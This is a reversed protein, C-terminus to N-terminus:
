KKRNNRKKSTNNRKSRRNNRKSRRNNRKSRNNRKKSRRNKYLNGGKIVVNTEYSADPHQDSVSVDKNIINGSTPPDNNKNMIDYDSSETLLKNFFEPTDFTDESIKIKLSEQLTNQLYVGKTPLQEPTAELEEIVNKGRNKVLNYFVISCKNIDNKNSPYLLLRCVTDKGDRKIENNLIKTVNLAGAFSIGIYQVHYGMPQKLVPSGSLLYSNRKKNVCKLPHKYDLTVALGIHEKCRTSTSNSVQVFCDVNTAERNTEDGKSSCPHVFGSGPPPLGPVPDNYSTIRLFTIKDKTLKCFINATNNDFCRPAGLSICAINNHLKTYTTDKKIHLAYIYAFMTCLAGGLSHGTTLLKVSGADENPNIKNSVYVIVDMLIHIVDMLIKYIGFLYKEKITDQYLTISNIGIPLISTPKTYSGFSKVSYTGRFSIVVLNPMRKDGTVYINGYNSTAISVFVIQDNSFITQKTDCNPTTADIREEQNIKNIKQVWPLFQLGKEGFRNDTQKFVNVGYKENVSALEFMKTDNLIDRIGNGDNKICTNIDKLMQNPIIGEVTESGFIKAIHGLYQNDPMYALRSWIACLFSITNVTGYDETFNNLNVQGVTENVANQQIPTKADNSGPKADNSGPKTPMNNKSSSGESSM